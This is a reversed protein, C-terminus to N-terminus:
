MNLPISISIQTGLNIKSHVDLRGNLSEIRKKINNLGSYDKSNRDYDFGKGDDKISILLEEKTYSINTALFSSRSHKLSNNYIEQVARFILLEKSAEIFVPQGQTEFIIKTKGLSNIYELEKKICKILGNNLVYDSNLTRSLSRLNAIAKTLLNAANISHFNQSPLQNLHLKSITLTLGINDHIEKSINKLLSEQIEIQAKL